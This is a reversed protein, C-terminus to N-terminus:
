FVILVIYQDVVNIVVKYISCPGLSHLKKDVLGYGTKSGSESVTM